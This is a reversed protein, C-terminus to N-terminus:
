AGHDHHIVFYFSLGLLALAFCSLLSAGLLPWTFGHESLQRFCAVPMAPAVFIALLFPLKAWGIPWGCLLVFFIWSCLLAVIGSLALTHAPQLTRGLLGM